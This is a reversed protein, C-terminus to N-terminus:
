LKLDENTRSCKQFRDQLNHFERNVQQLKM